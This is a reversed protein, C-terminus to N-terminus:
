NGDWPTEAVANRASIRGFALCEGINGTGQHIHILTTYGRYLGRLYGISKALKIQPHTYIGARKLDTRMYSDAILDLAIVENTDGPHRAVIRLLSDLYPSQSNGLTVCSLLALGAFLNRM